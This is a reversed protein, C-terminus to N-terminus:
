IAIRGAEIQTDVFAEVTAPTLALIEAVLGHGPPVRLHCVNNMGVAAGGGQTHAMYYEGTDFVFSSICDAYKM